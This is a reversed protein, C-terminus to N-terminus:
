EMNFFFVSLSVNTNEGGHVGHRVSSDTRLLPVLNKYQLDIYIAACITM